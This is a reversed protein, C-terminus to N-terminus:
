GAGAGGGGGGAGSGVREAYDRVSYAARPRGWALRKELEQWQQREVLGRLWEPVPCQGVPRSLRSRGGPQAASRDSGM